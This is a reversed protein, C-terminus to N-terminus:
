VELSQWKHFLSHYKSPGVGSCCDRDTYLVKPSDVMAKEYRDMLGSAMLELGEAGESVTLVCQVIEGRENGVNTCWHATAGQLKNVVKKTSDIKLISGYISTLQALLIDIRAWVDRLYVAQFWKASPFSKMAPAEEYRTVGGTVMMAVGSRHRQCASLYLLQHRLYEESHLEHVNNRVSTSSNGATRARLLTAVSRDCAYKRTLVEPFRSRVFDPLQRLMRHDWSLFTSICTKCDMYEGALYYYEQMDLVLRVRNYLGKSRLSVKCTPCKFDVLWMKRPMWLFLRRLFYLQPKPESTVQLSPVSPPYWWNVLKDKLRGKAVFLSKGVWSRDGSAM